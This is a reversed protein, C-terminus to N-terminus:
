GSSTDSLDPMEPDTASADSEDGDVSAQSVQDENQKQKMAFALARKQKTVAKSVQNGEDRRQGGHGSEVDITTTIGMLFLYAAFQQAQIEGDFSCLQRM